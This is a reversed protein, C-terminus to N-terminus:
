NEVRLSNEAKNVAEQELRTFERDIEDEVLARVKAALKVALTDWQENTLMRYLKSHLIALYAFEHAATDLECTAETITTTM